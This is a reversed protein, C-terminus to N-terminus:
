QECGTKNPVPNTGNDPSCSFALFYFIAPSIRPKLNKFGIIYNISYQHCLQDLIFFISTLWVHIQSIKWKLLKTKLSSCM